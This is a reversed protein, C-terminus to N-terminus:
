IEITADKVKVAEVGRGVECGSCRSNKDGCIAVCAMAGACPWVSTALLPLDVNFGTGLWGPGAAWGVNDSTLLARRCRASEWM